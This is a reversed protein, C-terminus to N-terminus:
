ADKTEHTYAEKVRLATEVMQLAKRHLQHVRTKSLFMGGMIDEWRKMCLYRFELLIKCDEDSVLSITKQIEQKTDVLRDIEEDLIREAEMVRLVATEMTTVNRSHSVTEGGYSTTTKRTMVRLRELQEMKANIRQDIRYARNLYEKANM